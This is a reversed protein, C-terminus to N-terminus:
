LLFFLLNRSLYNDGAHWSVFDVIHISILLDFGASTVKQVRQLFGHKSFPGNAQTVSAFFTYLSTIIKVQPRLNKFLTSISAFFNSASSLLFVHDPSVNQKRPFRESDINLNHAELLKNNQKKKKLTASQGLVMCSEQFTNNNEQLGFKDIKDLHGWYCYDCQLFTSGVGGVRFPLLWSM